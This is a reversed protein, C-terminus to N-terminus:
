IREPQPAALLEAMTDVADVMLDTEGVVVAMEASFARIGTPQDRNEAEHLGHVLDAHLARLPEPRAPGAQGSLCDALVTMTTSIGDRLPVLQAIPPHSAPQSARMAVAALAFRHVSAVIGNAAETTLAGPRDPETAMRDVAAEANTRAVRAASGAQDLARQDLAAPDIEGDLVLRAFMEQTVLLRALLRPVETAAWTPWLLFIALALAIGILNDVARDTAATLPPLGGFAAFFVVLPTLALTYLGYNTQRVTFVVVALVSILVALAVPGPRLEAAVITALVAGTVAGGARGLGRTITTDFDPKLVMLAAVAIWYEHSGPLTRYLVTAVTVAVALRLAHRFATSAFTFNARLLRVETRALTAASPGALTAPFTRRDRVTVTSATVLRQVSRLQGHLARVLDVDHGAAVAGIPPARGVGDEGALEELAATARDIAEHSETGAPPPRNDRIATAIVELLPGTLRAVQDLATVAQDAVAPKAGDRGDTAQPEGGAATAGRVLSGALHDRAVALAELSRRIREAEDALSQLSRGQGWQAQRSSAALTARLDEIVQADALALRGQPLVLAYASLNDYAAALAQREPDTRREWPGAVVLTEILGGVGVQAAHILATTTGVPQSSSILFEITGLIAILAVGPGIAELLGSGFAMLGALVVVVWTWSGVTGAILTNVALSAAVGLMITARHRPSPVFGAFATLLAGAAAYAGGSPHGIALGIVLPIAVGIGCRVGTGLDLKSRNFAVTRRALRGVVQGIDM